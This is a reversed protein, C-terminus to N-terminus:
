RILQDDGSLVLFQLAQQKRLANITTRSYLDTGILAQQVKAEELSHRIRKNNANANEIAYWAAAMEKRNVSAEGFASEFAKDLDDLNRAAVQAWKRYESSTALAHAAILQNARIIAEYSDLERPEDEVLNVEKSSPNFHTMPMLGNHVFDELADYLGATNPFLAGPTKSLTNCFPGICYTFTDAVALDYQREIHLLRRDLSHPITAIDRDYADYLGVLEELKSLASGSTTFFSHVSNGYTRFTNPMNKFWDYLSIFSNGIGTWLKVEEYAWRVSTRIKFAYAVTAGAIKWARSKSKPKDTDAIRAVLDEFDADSEKSPRMIDEISMSQVMTQLDQASSSVAFMCLFLILLLKKM